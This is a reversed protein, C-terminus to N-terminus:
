IRCGSDERPLESGSPPRQSVFLPRRQRQRGFRYHEGWRAQRQGGRRGDEGRGRVQCSRAFGPCLRFLFELRLPLPVSYGDGRCFGRDPAYEIDNRFEEWKIA